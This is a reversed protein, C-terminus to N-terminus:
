YASQFPNGKRCVEGRGKGAPYRGAPRSGFKARRDRGNESRLWVPEPDRKNVAYCEVSGSAAGAPLVDGGASERHRRRTRARVRESRARRSVLQAALLGDRAAQEDCRRIRAPTQPSRFEAGGRGEARERHT